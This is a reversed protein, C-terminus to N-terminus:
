PAAGKSTLRRGHDGDDRRARSVCSCANAAEATPAESAIQDYRHPRGDQALQKGASDELRLYSDFQRSKLDIIYTSGAKMEHEHVKHPSKTIVKDKPDDPSLKGEIKTGQDDSKENEQAWAAPLLLLLVLGGLLARLM